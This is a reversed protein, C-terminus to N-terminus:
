KEESSPAVIVPVAIGLEEMRRLVEDIAAVREEVYAQMRFLDEQQLRLQEAVLANEKAQEEAEKLLTVSATSSTSSPLTNAQTGWDHREPPERETVAQERAQLAAEWHSLKEQRFAVDRRAREVAAERLVLDQLIEATGESRNIDHREKAALVAERRKLREEFLTMDRWRHRLQLAASELQVARDNMKRLFASSSTTTGTASSPSSSHSVAAEVARRVMMDVRAELEQQTTTPAARLADSLVQERLFVIKERQAVAAEAYELADLRADSFVTNNM